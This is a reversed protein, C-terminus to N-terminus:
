SVWGCGLPHVVVGEDSIRLILYGGKFNLHHYGLEYYILFTKDNISLPQALRLIEKANKDWKNRYEKLKLSDEEPDFDIDNLSLNHAHIDNTQKKEFLVLDKNTSKWNSVSTNKQSTNKQIIRELKKINYKKMEMDGSKSLIDKAICPIDKKIIEIREDLVEEQLWIKDHRTRELFWNTTQEFILENPIDRGNNAYACSYLVTILWLQISYMNSKMKELLM